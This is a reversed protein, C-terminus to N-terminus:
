RTVTSTTTSATPPELTRYDLRTLPSSALDGNGRPVDQRRGDFEFLVREVNALATMTFVVQALAQIQRRGTVNLLASSLDVTLLGDVPGDLGRLFTDATIASTLGASTEAATVPKLLVGAVKATTVPAAVTRLVPRLTGKDDLLYVTVPRGEVPSSTVSTSTSPQDLLGFPVDAPAIARPRADKSVGCAGLVLALSSVAAVVTGPRRRRDGAALAKM